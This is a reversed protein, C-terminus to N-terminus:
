YPLMCLRELPENNGDNGVAYENDDDAIDVEEAYEM